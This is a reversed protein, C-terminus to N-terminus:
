SNTVLWARYKAGFMEHVMQRQRGTPARYAMGTPDSCRLLSLAHALV